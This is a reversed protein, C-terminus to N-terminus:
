LPAHLPLAPHMRGVAPSTPGSKADPSDDAHQRNRSELLTEAARYRTLLGPQPWVGGGLIVLTLAVVALREVPRSGLHVTTTHRTGTFVRFYAHVVAIGALAAAAIVALGVYANSELAGDVLLEAGVFGFTGPFGVSALGTILFLGALDPIHEYLGHYDTLSLSGTRAEVARLVLGFGGMALVVSLWVSLGGTLGLPRATELGVLVLSCQSLFLYAFFRRAQQQVLTMGAAYVATIASLVIICRLAWVPAVPLVFRVAAYAGVMRTLFLLATSFTAKEMLECVWLHLPFCGNRILVALCLCVIGANQLREVSSEVLFQGVALLVSFAAMLMSYLWATQGRSWIEVLPPVTGAALLATLVWPHRTALTAMLLAESIMTGTFSYRPLKTRLTLVATVLHLLASASLLPAALWDVVLLPEGLWRSFLDWPDSISDAQSQALERWAGLTCLLTLAAFGVSASHAQERDRTWGAYAAGILPFVVALTLWPVAMVSM